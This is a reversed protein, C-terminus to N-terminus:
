AFLYNKRLQEGARCTCKNYCGAINVKMGEAVEMQYVAGSEFGRLSDEAVVKAVGEAQVAAIADSLNKNFRNILLCVPKHIANPKKHLVTPNVSVWGQYYFSSMDFTESEHGYHIRSRSSPYSIDHDIIFAVLAKIFNAEYYDSYEDNNKNKRLDIIIGRANKLTDKLRVSTENTGFGNNNESLFTEDFHLLAISDPLWKLLSREPLQVSDSVNNGTDAIATYPDHLEDFMKQLANKFNAKSPDKLLGKINETFLSDANTKNYAMEPHFLNVM